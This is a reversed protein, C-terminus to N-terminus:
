SPLSELFEVLARDFEEPREIGRVRAVSSM